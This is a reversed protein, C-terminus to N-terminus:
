DEDVARIPDGTSLWGSTLVDARLGGRGTLAHRVGPQTREELYRCPDCPRVGLCLVEGITFHRGVLPGLEVGATLLNRRTDEPRLDIGTEYHIADLDETAFLTLHKGNGPWWSWYGIGTAYRDGVLGVGAVARVRPVVHMSESPSPAILIRVVRGAQRSM